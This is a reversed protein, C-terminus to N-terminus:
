LHDGYIETVQGMPEFANSLWGEVYQRKSFASDLTLQDYFYKDVDIYNDCSPFLTLMASLGIGGALIKASLRMTKMM